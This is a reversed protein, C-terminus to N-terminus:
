SFKRGFLIFFTLNLLKKNSQIMVAPMMLFIGGGGGGSWGVLSFFRLLVNQGIPSQLNTWSTLAILCSVFENSESMNLVTLFIVYGTYRNSFLM